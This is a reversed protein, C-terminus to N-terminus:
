DTDRGVTGSTFSPDCNTPIQTQVVGDAYTLGYTAYNKLVTVNTAPQGVVTGFPATFTFNQGTITAIALGLTVLSFVLQLYRISSSMDLQPFSIGNPRFVVSNKRPAFCLRSGFQRTCWSM